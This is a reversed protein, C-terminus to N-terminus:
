PSVEFDEKPELWYSFITGLGPRKQRLTDKSFVAEGNGLFSFREPLHSHSIVTKMPCKVKSHQPHHSSGCMSWSQM